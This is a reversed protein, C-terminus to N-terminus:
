PGRPAAALQSRANHQSYERDHSKHGKHKQTPDTDEGYVPDTGTPEAYLGSQPPQDREAHLHTPGRVALFWLLAATQSVSPL